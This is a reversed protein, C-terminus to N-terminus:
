AKEHEAKRSLKKFSESVADIVAARFGHEELAKVGEIAAGGPICCEDRLAAPHRGTDLVMQAAGAVAHATWELASARDMGAIVAGDTLAEILMYTFAPVCGEIMMATRAHDEDTVGVAGCGSFLDCMEDVLEGDAEGCPVILMMGRGVECSLSPLARIVPNRMGLAEHMEEASVGASMPVIVQEPTLEPAIERLVGCVEGDKVGLVIFKAGRAAAPGSQSMVCGCEEALAAARKQDRTTICVESPETQRCVARVIASGLSGTGIFAITKM